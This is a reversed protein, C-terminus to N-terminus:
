KNGNVTEVLISQLKEAFHAWSFREQVMKKGELSLDNAFSPNKLLRIISEALSESDGPPVLLGNVGNKIVSTIPELSSTIVPKMCAMYEFVKLPSGIGYKNRL